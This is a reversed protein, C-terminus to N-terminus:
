LANPRMEMGNGERVAPVMFFVAGSLVHHYKGRCRVILLSRFVGFVYDCGKYKTRSKQTARKDFGLSVALDRLHFRQTAASPVRRFPVAASVTTANM